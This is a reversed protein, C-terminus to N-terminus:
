PAKGVKAIWAAIDAVVEDAVHGELSYEIPYSKGTGTVFLHNLSPYLKFTAEPTSALGTKWIEFDKATVQYDRGGQLFLMPRHLNKAAVLPDYERWDLWYAPPAGFLVTHSNRDAASLKRLKDADAEVKALEAKGEASPEGNASILYRVQEVIIEDFPRISGAMVILGAIQPDAAGIRPALTGGMSHGLVFIRQPDINKSARLQAVAGVADCITEEKVTFHSSGNKWFDDIPYQRTRKEYRLVAIGKAALGWALDRFPKCGGVTEDRDEPGSGHVLVVAPWPASGTKPLTLTGSL